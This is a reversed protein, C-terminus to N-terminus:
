LSAGGFAVLYIPNEALMMHHSGLKKSRTIGVQLLEYTDEYDPYKRVIQQLAELTEVTVATAVFRADANKQRVTEVIASLNGESGGIFVYGPEPLEALCDPAEGAVILMNDAAFKQKNKELLALATDKKEIAYVTIDPSLLSIEVSVSGTGAGVDYVVADATMRLKSIVLSRVEEKTMPTMPKGDEGDRLFRYDPIGATVTKRRPSDNEFLVVSLADVEVDVLDEAKACSIEEDEYSLRQGVTVLVDGLEYSVLKRCIAAVDHKSGLLSCVRRNDRILSIMHAQQGHNSVLLTDDWTEGMKDLFYIPSAMGPIMIVECLEGEGRLERDSLAKALKKAGSYFGIDGSFLVGILVDAPQGDIFELIEDLKYTERYKKDRCPPYIDLIRRAGVFADVRNLAATAEETLQGHSGTGMGIMYVKKM